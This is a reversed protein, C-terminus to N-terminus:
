TDDVAREWKLVAARALGRRDHERAYHRVMDESQATIANVEEIPCRAEILAMVANKRLGHLPPPDKMGLHFCEQRIATSLYNKNLKQGRTGCVLYVSEVPLPTALEKALERHIPIYVTKGTKEAIGSIMNDKIQDRRMSIVDSRRQGTYLLVTVARRMTPRADSLFLDIEGKTWPRWPRPRYGVPFSVGLAPNQQIIAREVALGFLLRVVVM